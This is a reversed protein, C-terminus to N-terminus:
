EHGVDTGKAACEAVASMRPGSQEDTGVEVSCKGLPLEQEWGGM